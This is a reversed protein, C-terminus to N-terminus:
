DLQSLVHSREILLSPLRPPSMKSLLLSQAPLSFAEEKQLPRAVSRSAKDRAERMAQRKERQKRVRTENLANARTAQCEPSCYRPPPGPYRLQTTSKCCVECTFTVERM